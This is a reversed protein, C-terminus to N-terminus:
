HHPLSTQGMVAWVPSLQAAVLSCSLHEETKAVTLHSYLPDSLLLSEKVASLCSCHFMGTFLFSIFSHPLNDM